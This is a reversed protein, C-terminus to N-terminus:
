LLLGDFRSSLALVSVGSGHVAFCCSVVVMLVVRCLSYQFKHNILRFALKARGDFRSSLALVSVFFSEVCFRRYTCVMLVVRCLSYQFKNDGRTGARFTLVMLVVRCLSYQFATMANGIEGDVYAVM